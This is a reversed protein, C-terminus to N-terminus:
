SLRDALATPSQLIVGGECVDHAVAGMSVAFLGLGAGPYSRVHVGGKASKMFQADCM